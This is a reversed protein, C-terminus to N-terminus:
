AGVAAGARAKRMMVAQIVIAGVVLVIAALAVAVIPMTQAQDVESRKIVVGAYAWIVVMGSAIAGRRLVLAIAIGTGVALVIVTWWVPDLGFGNWGSTVLVATVNAIMAVCIWGLYVLIPTRLFFRQLSSAGDRQAERDATRRREMLLILTGLIGVMILLSLPVLRWHWAFIWGANLAANLSFIWGEAASWRGQGAKGFASKLVAAVYGLLLLYILGWIAFTIGAPVFLNPIEDSLQGTNVGNLPLANALANRYGDPHVHHRLGYRSGADPYQSNEHLKRELQISSLFHQWVFITM